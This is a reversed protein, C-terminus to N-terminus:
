PQFDLIRPNRIQVQHDYTENQNFRRYFFNSLRNLDDLYSSLLSIAQTYVNNGYPISLENTLVYYLRDAKYFYCVNKEQILYDEFFGM